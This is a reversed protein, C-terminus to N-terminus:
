GSLDKKPIMGSRIYMLPVQLKVIILYGDLEQRSKVMM